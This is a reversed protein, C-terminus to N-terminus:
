ARPKGGGFRKGRGTAPRKGWGGDRKPRGGDRKGFGDRKGTSERPGYDKRKGFGGRQERAPRQVQDRHDALAVFGVPVPFPDLGGEQLPFENLFVGGFRAHFSSLGFLVAM